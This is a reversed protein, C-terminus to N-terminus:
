AERVAIVHDDCLIPVFPGNFTSDGRGGSYGGPRYRASSLERHAGEVGVVEVTASRGSCFGLHDVGDGAEVPCGEHSQFLDFAVVGGEHSPHQSVQGRSTEVIIVGIGMRIDAPM